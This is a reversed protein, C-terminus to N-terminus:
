AEEITTTSPPIPDVVMVPCTGLRLVARVVSGLHPGLPITHRHRGAVLLAVQQSEDVLAQGARAHRAVVETEVDPYEALLPALDATIAQVQEADHRATGEADFVVDDYANSYHWAHLLRLKAGRLRAEELAARVIEHSGGPDHIAATVTQRESSESWGAPVAVVPVPSLAAVPNTTSLTPVLGRHGMRQHQLVVLGAHEAIDVLVRTVPGHALETTVPLEEGLDHELALAAHDLAERGFKRVAREEVTLAVGDPSIVVPHLVHVLHVGAGRRRAEAAAFGLAAQVDEDGTVGVLIKRPTTDLM